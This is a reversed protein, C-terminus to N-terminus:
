GASSAGQERYPRMYMAVCVHCAYMDVHTYISIYSFYRNCVVLDYSLLM